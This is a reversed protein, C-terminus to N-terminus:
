GLAERYLEDIAVRLAALRDGGSAEVARRDVALPWTTDTPDQVDVAYSDRKADHRVRGGEVLNWGSPLLGRVEATTYSLM